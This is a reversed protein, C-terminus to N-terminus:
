HSTYQFTIYHLTIFHMKFNPSICHSPCQTIYSIFHLKIHSLICHLTNSLVTLSVYWTAGDNCFIPYKCVVFSKAMQDVSLDLNVKDTAHPNNQQPAVTEIYSASFLDDNKHFFQAKLQLPIGVGCLSGMVHYDHHNSPSRLAVQSSVCTHNSLSHLYGFM